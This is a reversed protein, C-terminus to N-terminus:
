PLHYLLCTYDLLMFMMIIYPKSILAWIIIMVFLVTADPKIVIVFSPIKFGVVFDSNCPQLDDM